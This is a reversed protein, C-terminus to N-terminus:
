ALFADAGTNSELLLRALRRNSDLVIASLVSTQCPVNAKIVLTQELRISHLFYVLQFYEQYDVCALCLLQKFDLRPDEKALRCAQVLDKSEIILQPLDVVAGPEAHFDRFLEKLLDLLDRSSQSLQLSDSATASPHPITVAKHCEEQRGAHNKGSAQSDM